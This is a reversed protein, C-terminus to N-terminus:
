KKIEEIIEKMDKIEENIKNIQENANKEKKEIIEKVIPLLHDLKMELMQMKYMIDRSMKSGM